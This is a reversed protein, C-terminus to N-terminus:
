VVYKEFNSSKLIGNCNNERLHWPLHWLVGKIVLWGQKLYNSPYPVYRSIALVLTDMFFM